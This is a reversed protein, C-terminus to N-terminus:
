DSIGVYVCFLAWEGFQEFFNIPSAKIDDPLIKDLGRGTHLWKNVIVETKDLVGFTVGAHFSLCANPARLRQAIDACLRERLCGGGVRTVGKMGYAEGTTTELVYHKANNSGQNVKYLATATCSQGTINTLFISYKNLDNQSLQIPSVDANLM